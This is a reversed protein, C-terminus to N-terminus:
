AGVKIEKQSEWLGHINCYSSAIVTGSVKLQVKTSFSPETYAPGQNAGSAAEGHSSFEARGLNILAGNGEPKFWLEIWSIFHETTNPHRIDKGVSASLTFFEGSSVTDPAEIAPAHKETKFDATKIHQGLTSM